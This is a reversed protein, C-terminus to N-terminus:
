VLNGMLVVKQLLSICSKIIQLVVQNQIQINLNTLIKNFTELQIFNQIICPKKILSCYYLNNLYEGM